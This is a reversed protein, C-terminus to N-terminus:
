LSRRIADAIEAKYNAVFKKDYKRTIYSPHKMFIIKKDPSRFYTKAVDGVLVIVKPKLLDFERGKFHLCNKIESVFPKKNNPPSCFCTNTFYCNSLSINAMQIIDLIFGGTKSTPTFCRGSLNGGVQSPAEGIFAIFANQSGFPLAVKNRSAVLRPCLTCKSINERLEELSDPM